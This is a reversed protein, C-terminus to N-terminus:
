IRRLAILHSKIITGNIWQNNAKDETLNEERSSESTVKEESKQQDMIQYKKMDGIVKDLKAVKKNSNSSVSPKRRSTSLLKDSPDNDFIDHEDFDFATPGESVKIEESESKVETNQSSSHDSPSRRGPNTWKLDIVGHKEVQQYLQAIRAPDPRWEIKGDVKTLTGCKQFTEEDSCEALLDESVNSSMTDITRVDALTAILHNFIIPIGAMQPLTVKGLRM